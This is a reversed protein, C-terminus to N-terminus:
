VSSTPRGEMLCDRSSATQGPEAYKKTNGCVILILSSDIVYIFTIKHCKKLANHMNEVAFCKVRTRPGVGGEGNQARQSWRYVVGLLNLVRRPFQTHISEPDSAATPCARSGSIRCRDPGSGFDHQCLPLRLLCLRASFFFPAGPLLVSSDTTGPFVDQTIRIGGSEQDLSSEMDPSGAACSQATGARKGTM